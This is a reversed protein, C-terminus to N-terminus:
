ESGLTGDFQILEDERSYVGHKRAKPRKIGNIKHKNLPAWTLSTEM